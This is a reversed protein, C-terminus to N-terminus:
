LPSKSKLGSVQCRAFSPATFAVVHQGQWLLSGDAEKQTLAKTKECSNMQSKKPPGVRGKQMFESLREAARETAVCCCMVWRSAVWSGLHFPCRKLGATDSSYYITVVMWWCVQVGRVFGRTDADFYGSANEEWFLFLTKDWLVFFCLIVFSPLSTNQDLTTVPITNWHARRSSSPM